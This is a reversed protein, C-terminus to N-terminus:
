DVVRYLHWRDPVGKLEHEGRDEFTLGSGAVLDKVTSSVLVQSPGALAGVRAGIHVAIGGVKGDITECEGTHVGSRVEIDLERVDDVIARACRIARAPGDFTALFGDGATDVETGRYRALMARVTAHHRELLERWARDGLDAAKATSGVIDTFLVTALVRELEAQETRVDSLFTDVVHFVSSQDGVWLPDDVGPLQQLRAGPIHEALYRAPDAANLGRVPDPVADPRFLVLAPVHISPLIARIDTYIYKRSTASAAGPSQSLRNYRFWWEVYDPDDVMSPAWDRVDQLAEAHTPWTRLGVHQSEWQEETKEWPTEESWLWNARADYLIVAVTREPYTAAFMCAVNGMENTTLLATRESGIADLVVALDEMMMELPWIENPSSRESCGDGRPDTMILRRSRGLGRLFRSMTPHDWNLVVNSTWGQLYLLDSAGEGLVQYALANGGNWAFQTEPIEVPADEGRVRLSRLGVVGRWRRSISFSTRSNESLCPLSCVPLILCGAFRVTPGRRSRNVHGHALLYMRAAGRGCAGPALSAAM